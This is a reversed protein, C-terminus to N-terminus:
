RKQNQIEIMERVELTQIEILDDQNELDLREIMAEVEEITVLSSLQPDHLFM